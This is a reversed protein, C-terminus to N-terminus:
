QLAFGPLLGLFQRISRTPTPFARYMKLHIPTMCQTQAAFGFFGVTKKLSQHVLAAPFQILNHNQGPCKPDSGFVFPGFFGIASAADDATVRGSKGHFQGIQGVARTLLLRHDVMVQIVELSLGFGQFRNTVAKLLFQLRIFHVTQAPCQYPAKTLNRIFPNPAFQQDPVQHLLLIKGLGKGMGPGQIQTQSFLSSPNQVQGANGDFVFVPFGTQGHQIINHFLRTSVQHTQLGLGFLAVYAGVQQAGFGAWLPIGQLSQSPRVFGKQVLRLWGFISHPHGGTISFKQGKVQSTVFLGHIQQFLHYLM